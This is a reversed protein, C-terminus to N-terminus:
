SCDGDVGASQRGVDQLHVPCASVMRPGRCPLGDGGLKMGMPLSGFLKGSRIRREVGERIRDVIMERELEAIAGLVQMIM